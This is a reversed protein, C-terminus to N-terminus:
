RRRFPDFTLKAFIGGLIAAYAHTQVVQDCTNVPGVSGSAQDVAIQVCGRLPIALELNMIPGVSFVQGLRWDLGLAVPLTLGRFDLLYNGNDPGGGSPLGFGLPHSYSASDDVYGIGVHVWPQLRTSWGTLYYRLYAGLSWRVRRLGGTGDPFDGSADANNAYNAYTIFAGLSFEPMVRYGAAFEFGFPDLSYPTFSQHASKGGAPNLITGAPNLQQFANGYVNSAQVPSDGGGYSVGGLAMLEPGRIEAMPWASVPPDPARVTVQALSTSSVLWATLGAFFSARSM